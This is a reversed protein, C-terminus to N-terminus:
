KIRGKKIARIADSFINKSSMKKPVKFFPAFKKGIKAHGRLVRKATTKRLQRITGKM